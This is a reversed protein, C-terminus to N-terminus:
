MTGGTGSSYKRFAEALQRLALEIPAYLGPWLAGDAGLSEPRRNIEESYKKYDEVYGNRTSDILEAAKTQREQPTSNETTDLSALVPTAIPDMGFLGTKVWNRLEDNLSLYGDNERFNATGKAEIGLDRLEIYANLSSSENLDRMQAVQIYALGLSELIAPLLDRSESDVLTLLPNPFGVRNGRQRLVTLSDRDIRGLLLGTFWGRVMTLLLQQSVPVFETLPRARRNLWFNRAAPSSAVSAWTSIIPDNISHFILPDHAAGLTSSIPITRINTDTSLLGSFDATGGGLANFLISKVDEELPHDKLPIKGIKAKPREPSLPHLLAKLGADIEVLPEASDISAQLAKRFNEQRKALEDPDIGGQDSLYSRLDANLVRAFPNGQKLLWHNARDLIDGAALGIDFTAATATGIGGLVLTPDIRWTQNVKIPVKVFGSKLDEENLFSGTILENRAALMADDSGGEEVTKELLADFQQRFDDHSIVLCENKPPVLRTPVADIPWPPIIAPTIGDGVYGKRDLEGAAFDLSRKLPTLFNKSFDRLIDAGVRRRKAEIPHLAREQFGIEIAETLAMHGPQIRGSVNLRSVMSSNYRAPGADWDDSAEKYLENVTANSVEIAMELTRKAVALGYSAILDNTAAITRDAQTAAWEVVRTKRMEMEADQIFQDAFSPLFNEIQQIWAESNVGKPSVDLRIQETLNAVATWFQNRTDRPDIADIVDNNEPGQENLGAQNLFTLLRKSALEDIITDSKANRSPDTQELYKLHGEHLWDAASRALREASYQEFRDTGLNVECFGYAEFVPEHQQLLVEADVMNAKAQTDWNTITYGILEDQVGEDTTWSRLARGMMKYVAQQNGFAVGKTNSAGVLFPYKPGSREVPRANGAASLLPNVRGEPQESTPTLWHGNLVESIAALTNPQIGATGQGVQKFVDATYLIGFSEDGWSGGMQRIIDCTDMLLGAGSGGALSSVVVVVPEPKNSSGRESNVKRSIEALQAGADAHMLARQATNVAERIREAYALGIARGVARYQGAGTEIPVNLFTPNVRWTSLDQWGKSAKAGSSLKTSVNDFTIGNGVLGVYNEAPLMPVETIEKGDQESPTDIQILQWGVPFGGQWGIQDLWRTLDNRLYRLTKGGSGGLGVFMFKRM